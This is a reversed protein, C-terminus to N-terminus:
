IKPSYLHQSQIQACYDQLAKEEEPSGFVFKVGIRFNFAESTIVAGCAPQEQCWVVCGTIKIQIPEELTIVVKEGPNMPQAAYIGIGTTSLDNLLVRAEISEGQEGTTTAQAHTEKNPVFRM